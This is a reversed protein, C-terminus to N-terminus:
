SLTELELAALLDGLTAIKEQAKQIRKQITYDACNKLNFESNGMRNGLDKISTSLFGPICRLKNEIEKSHYGRSKFTQYTNRYDILLGEIRLIEKRVAGVTEYNITEDFTTTQGM